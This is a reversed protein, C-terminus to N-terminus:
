KRILWYTLTTQGDNKPKILNVGEWNADVMYRYPPYQDYECKDWVIVWHLADNHFCAAIFEAAVLQLFM